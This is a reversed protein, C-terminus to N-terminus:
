PILPTNTRKVVQLLNVLLKGLSLRIVSEGGSVAPYPYVPPGTWIYRLRKMEQTYRPSYKELKGHSFRFFNIITSTPISGVVWFGMTQRRRWKNLFLPTNTRKVVQLQNVSLKGLSLRIVDHCKRQM